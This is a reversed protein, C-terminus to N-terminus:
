VVRKRGKVQVRFCFYDSAQSLAEARRLRVCLLAGDQQERVAQQCKGLGIEHHHQITAANELLPGVGLQAGTVAQVGADVPSLTQCAYPLTAFLLVQHV